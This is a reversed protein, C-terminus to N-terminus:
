FPVDNSNYAPAAARAPQRANNAPAPANGGGQPRFVYWGRAKTWKGNADPQGQENLKRRAFLSGDEIHQGFELRARCEGNLCWLEYYKYQKKDKEVERVRPEIDECGCLGCCREGLVDLVAPAKEFLDKVDAGDIEVSYNRRHIVLKM